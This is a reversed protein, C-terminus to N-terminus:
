HNSDSVAKSAPESQAPVIETGTPGFFYLTVILFSCMLIMWRLYGRRTLRM